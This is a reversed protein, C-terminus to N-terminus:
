TSIQILIQDHLNFEEPFNRQATPHTIGWTKFTQLAKSTHYICVCRCLTVNWFHIKLLITVSIELKSINKTCNIANNIVPSSEM